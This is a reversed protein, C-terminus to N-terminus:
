EKASEDEVICSSFTKELIKNGTMLPGRIDPLQKKEWIGKSLKLKAFMSYDLMENNDLFGLYPSQKM